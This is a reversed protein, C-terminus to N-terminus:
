SNQSRSTGPAILQSCNCHCQRLFCFFRGISLLWECPVLIFVVVCMIIIIIVANTYRWLTRLYWDLCFVFSWLICLKLLM